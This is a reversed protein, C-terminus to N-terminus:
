PKLKTTIVEHMRETLSRIREHLMDLLQQFGKGNKDKLMNTANLFFRDHVNGSAYNSSGCRATQPMKRQLDLRSQVDEKVEATNNVIHNNSRHTLSAAIMANNMAANDRSYSDM